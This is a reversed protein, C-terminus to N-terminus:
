SNNKALWAKLQDHSIGLGIISQPGLHALDERINKLVQERAEPPIQSNMATTIYIQTEQNNLQNIIIYRIMERRQKRYAVRIPDFGIAEITTDYVLTSRLYSYQYLEALPRTDNLEYIAIMADTYDQQSIDNFSLPVLNHNILPINASLRSTRKNVDVFPQLYAIHILLFLSQEYPNKIAAAKNCIEHFYTQLADPNELPMYVSGGIRVGYDRVIGSYRAAVLGDSLLYHLTFITSEEIAIEQPKKVLYRIAEQHNLIMTKEENLKDPADIGNILLKETELLSYTNGELRSSNYSLDILLRQYIQQAYTGAPENNRARKGAAFLKEQMDQPMYFDINPRYNQMWTPHYTVPNRLAYPRKIQEIVKESITSFYPKDTKDEASAELAIYRTGRKQGTKLIIGTKEWESLWRRVTREAYNPGLKQLLEPLSIPSKQTRLAELAVLKPQNKQM